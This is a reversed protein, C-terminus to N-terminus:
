SDPQAANSIGSENSLCGFCDNGSTDIVHFGDRVMLCHLALALVGGGDGGAVYEPKPCALQLLSTVPASKGNISQRGSM